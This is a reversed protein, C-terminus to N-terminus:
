LFSLTNQIAWFLVLTKIFQTHLILKSLMFKAFHFYNIWCLCIIRVGSQKLIQNFNINLFDLVYNVLVHFRQIKM